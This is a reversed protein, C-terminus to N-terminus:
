FSCHCSQSVVLFRRARRLSLPRVPTLTSTLLLGAPLSNTHIRISGSSVITIPVQTVLYDGNTFVPRFETLMQWDVRYPFVDRGVTAVSYLLPLDRLTYAELTIDVVEEVESELDVVLNQMEEVYLAELGTRVGFRDFFSNQTGSLAMEPVPPFGVRGKVPASLCLSWLIWTKMDM